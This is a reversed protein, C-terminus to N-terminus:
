RRAIRTAFRIAGGFVMTQEQEFSQGEFEGRLDHTSSVQYEGALELARAHGHALDWTLEGALHFEIESRSTGSGAEPLDEAPLEEEVFTGVELVLEIRAFRQGEEEVVGAFTASVKGALNERLAEDHESSPKREEDPEQLDLDGGPELVAQFAQADVAWSDGEDAPGEPLFRRLDMDEELGELLAGDGESGPAFSVDFREADGNWAFRVTKGELESEYESSTTEEEGDTTARMTEQGGLEDFARLLRTPRGGEVAEFTDTIRYREVHEIHVGFEGLAEPPVEEGDMSLTTSELELTFGNELTRELVTAAPVAFALEERRGSGASVVLVSAVWLVRHLM